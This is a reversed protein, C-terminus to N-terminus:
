KKYEKLTQDSRYFVVMDGFRRFYYPEITFYEKGDLILKNSSIGDNAKLPPTIKKGYVKILENYFAVADPTLIIKKDETIGVVGSTPNGYMDISPNDVQIPSLHPNTWWTCGAVWLAILSIALISRFKRYM